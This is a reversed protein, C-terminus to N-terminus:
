LIRRSEAIILHQVGCLAKPVYEKIKCIEEDSLFLHTARVSNEWVDLLAATLPTGAYIVAYVPM